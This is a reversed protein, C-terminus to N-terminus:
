LLDPYTLFNANRPLFRLNAGVKLPSNDSNDSNDSQRLSNDGKKANYYQKQQERIRPKNEQYWKAKREREKDKNNDRWKKQSELYTDRNARYYARQEETTKYGM